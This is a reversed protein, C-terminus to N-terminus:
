GSRSGDNWLALLAYPLSAEPLVGDAIVAIEGRMEIVNM